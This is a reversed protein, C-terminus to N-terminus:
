AKETSTPYAEVWGSNTCILVLLYRYGRCSKVETFDVELDEFPMTGTTQVGPSPKPEQSANNQACTICRASIQTCLIPLKPIFYYKDLLKELAMKGLHTLERQKVLPPAVASPFLLRQDPL